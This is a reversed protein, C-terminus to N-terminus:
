DDREWWPGCAKYLEWFSPDFRMMREFGPVDVRAFCEFLAVVIFDAYSPESGLM